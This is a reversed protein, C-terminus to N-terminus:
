FLWMCCFILCSYNMLFHFAGLSFHLNALAIIFDISFFNLGVVLSPPPMSIQYVVWLPYSICHFHFLKALLLLEYLLDVPSKFLLSGSLLCITVISIFSTRCSTCDIFVLICISLACLAVGSCLISSSLFLLSPLWLSLFLPNIPIVHLHKDCWDARLTSKVHKITVNQFEVIEHWYKLFYHLVINNIWTGSQCTKDVMIFPAALSNTFCQM